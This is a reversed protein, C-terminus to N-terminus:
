PATCRVADAQAREQGTLPTDTFRTNLACANEPLDILDSGRIQNDVLIHGGGEREVELKGFVVNRTVVSANGRVILDGEVNVRHVSINNRKVELDGRITVDRLRTRNGDLVVDGEIITTDAGHGVVSLMNGNVVLSGGVAAEDPGHNFAVGVANTTQHVTADEATAKIIHTAQDPPTTCSVARITDALVVIDILDKAANCGDPFTLPICGEGLVLCGSAGFTPRDQLRDGAANTGTLSFRLNGADSGLEPALPDDAEDPEDSPNNGLGPSGFANASSEGLHSTAVADSGDGLLLGCGSLSAIWAIALGLAELHNLRIHGHPVRRLREARLIRVADPRRAGRRLWLRVRRRKLSVRLLRGSDSDKSYRKLGLKQCRGFRHYRKHCGLDGFAADM